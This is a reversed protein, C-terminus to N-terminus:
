GPSQCVAQVLRTYVDPVIQSIRVIGDATPEADAAVDTPLFRASISECVTDPFFSVM